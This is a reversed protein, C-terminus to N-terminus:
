RSVVKAAFGIEAACIRKTGVTCHGSAIGGTSIFKTAAVEITLQDGPYAFHFFRGKVSGLVIEYDGLPTLDNKYRYLVTTVQAIAEIMLVGPMTPNEPFHGPFHAENVTINKIGVAKKRPDIEIIRDVFLFPHRQSLLKAIQNTDLQTVTDPM